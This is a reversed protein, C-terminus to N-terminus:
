KGIELRWAALRGLDKDGVWLPVDILETHYLFDRIPLLFPLIDTDHFRTYIDESTRVENKPCGFVENKPGDFFILHFFYFHWLTYVLPINELSRALQIMEGYTYYRPGLDIDGM